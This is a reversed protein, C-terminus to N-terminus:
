NLPTKVENELDFSSSIQAKVNHSKMVSLYYTTIVTMTSFRKQHRM